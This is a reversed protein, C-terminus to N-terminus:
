KREAGALVFIVAVLIILQWVLVMVLSLSFELNTAFWATVISSAYQYTETLAYVVIPLAPLLLLSAIPPRGVKINFKVGFAAALLSLSFFLFPASLRDLAAAEVETADHGYEYALEAIELLSFFGSGEIQDEAISLRRLEAASPRLALM